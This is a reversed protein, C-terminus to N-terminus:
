QLVREKQIKIGANKDIGCLLLQDTIQLHYNVILM